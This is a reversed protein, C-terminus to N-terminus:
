HKGRLQKSCLQPVRFDHVFFMLKVLWDIISFQIIPSLYIVTPNSVDNHAKFM